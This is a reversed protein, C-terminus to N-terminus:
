RSREGLDHTLARYREHGHLPSWAPNLLLMQRSFVSPTSLLQDVRDLAEDVAGVRALVLALDQLRVSGVFLDSSVPCLDLAATATEVAEADRGLGAYSRALASKIRDDTPEGEAAQELVVVAERYLSRARGRDGALDWVHGLLLPKPLFEEQDEYREGSLAEIEALARDYDREWISQLYLHPIQNAVEMRPMSDLVARAAALDGKWLWLNLALHAYGWAQDPAMALCRRYYPDAAAYRGLLAHCNGLELQAMPDTPDERAVTEFLPLSAEIQGSRRMVAAIITRLENDNPMARQASRLEVLAGKYDRDGWYRTSGAALHAHPSNPDLQLARAAAERARALRDSSRDRGHHYLRGHALAIGAQAAAFGPDLEIAREFLQIALRYDEGLWDRRNLLSQGRLYALYADADDTLRATLARRADGSLELGLQDVIQQAIDAQVDLVDLLERDQRGAWLQTDTRADVLQATVRVRAHAGARTWRVSGDVLYAVNLDVAIEGTTKGSRDYRTATSRSVVSLDESTALLASLEEALGQAFYDDEVHGLNDFPFVVVRKRDARADRTRRARRGQEIQHRLDSLEDLLELASQYRDGPDKALCRRIVASLAEPPQVPSNAPAPEDRLIASITEAVSERRFPHAGSAMEYLLIGFSFLDSRHDVPKGRAQEPSLYAVTGLIQGPRTVDTATTATADAIGAAAHVLRALGFDLIKVRGSAVMVNAPKLDRHVIGRAHAAALADAVSAGIELARPLPVAGQKLVEDLGEGEVLEMTLFHTDQDEEVSHLTVINPHELAAVTKAERLFRLRRDPDQAAEPSLVKLAVDRDLRTDRARYVVGMGGAGIKEIVRYHALNKGIM